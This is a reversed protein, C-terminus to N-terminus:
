VGPHLNLEKEIVKLVSDWYRVGSGSPQKTRNDILARRLAYQNYPKSASTNPITLEGGALFLKLADPSIESQTMYIPSVAKLLTQMQREIRTEMEFQLDARIGDHKSQVNTGVMISPLLVLQILQSSALGLLIGIEWNTVAGVLAAVGMGFFIYTCQMTGVHQTIWLGIRENRTLNDAHVKNAHKISPKM